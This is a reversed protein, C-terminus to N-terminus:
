IFVAVPAVVSVPQVPVTGPLLFDVPRIARHEICVYEIISKADSKPLVSSKGPSPVISPGFEIAESIIVSIEEPLLGNGVIRIAAGM